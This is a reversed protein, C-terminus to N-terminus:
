AELLAELTDLTAVIGVEHLRASPEDPIGMHRMVVRTGDGNPKLEIVVVEDPVAVGQQNYGVPADWHLTYVLREAPEVLAYVGEFAREAPGWGDKGAEEDIAVRYRGGPRVDATARANEGIGDWMWAAMQEPETFAAWVRDLPAALDRDIGLIGDNFPSV